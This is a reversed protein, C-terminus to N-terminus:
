TGEVLVMNTRATRHRMKRPESYEECQLWEKARAMSEFELVVIRKPQWDGELVETAGGRVIYKGGHKLVTAGALKKYEEYGIPDLVEIEVIVYAAM